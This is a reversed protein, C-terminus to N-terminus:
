FWIGQPLMMSFVNVFLTNVFIPAVIAIIGFFIRDKLKPNEAMVNMQLLLYIISSLLFGIPKLAVVYCVLLVFTLYVKKSNETEETEEAEATAGATRNKRITRITFYGYLLSLIIMLSGVVRPMFASGVDGNKAKVVIDMSFILELMGLILTFSAAILDQRQKKGM